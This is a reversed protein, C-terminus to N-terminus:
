KLIREKSISGILSIIDKTKIEVARPFKALEDEIFGEYEFSDGDSRRKCLQQMCLLALEKNIGLARYIVVYAALDKAEVELLNNPIEM